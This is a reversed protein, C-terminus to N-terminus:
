KLATATTGEIMQYSNKTVKKINESLIPFCSPHGYNDYKYIFELLDSVLIETFDNSRATAGFSDEKQPIVFQRLYEDVPLKTNKISESLEADSEYHQRIHLALECYVDENVVYDLIYCTITIGDELVIDKEEVFWNIYKPVLKM